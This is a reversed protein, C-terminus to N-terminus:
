DFAYALFVTERSLEISVLSSASFSPCLEYRLLSSLYFFAFMHRANLLDLVVSGYSRLPFRLMLILVDLLPDLNIKLRGDGVFKSIM